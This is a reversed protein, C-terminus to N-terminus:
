NPSIEKNERVQDWGWGWKYKNKIPSYHGARVGSYILNAWFSGASKEVCTKLKLDADAQDKLTGGYWYHLDHEICCHKWLNPETPPGDIFLTCFDTVFPKLQEAFSSYSFLIFVLIAYKKM